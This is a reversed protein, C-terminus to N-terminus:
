SVKLYNIYTHSHPGTNSEPPALAICLSIFCPIPCKSSIQVSISNGLANLKECVGQWQHGNSFHSLLTNNLRGRVEPVEPQEGWQVDSGHPLQPHVLCSRKVVGVEPVGQAGLAWVEQHM